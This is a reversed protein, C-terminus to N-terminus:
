RKTRKRRKAAELATIREEHNALIKGHRVLLALSFGGLGIDAFIKLLDTDM